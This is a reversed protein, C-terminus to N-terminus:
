RGPRTRGRCPTRNACRSSRRPLPPGSLRAGCTTLTYVRVWDITYRQPWPADADPPGPFNGGVALNLLLYFDKDWVWTGDAAEVQERTVSGYAAGDMTFTVRDTTWTAGYVHFGASLDQGTEKTVSILFPSDDPKPGHLTGVITNPKNGTAEVIDLEGAKPWGVTDIDEGLAWFAPWTGSSTPLKARMELRGYTTSFKKQTLIRASTYDNTRGDSCIHGM